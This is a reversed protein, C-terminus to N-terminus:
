ESDCLFLHFSWIAAVLTGVLARGLAGVPAIPLRSRSAMSPFIFFGGGLGPVGGDPGTKFRAKLSDRRRRLGRRPRWRPPGGCGDGRAPAAPTTSCATLLALFALRRM